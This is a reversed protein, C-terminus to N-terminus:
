IGSFRKKQSTAKALAQRQDPKASRCVVRDTQLQEPGTLLGDNM